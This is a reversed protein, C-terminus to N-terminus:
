AGIMAAVNQLRGALPAQPMAVPYALVFVALATIDDVVFMESTTIVRILMQIVAFVVAAAAFRSQVAFIGIRNNFRSLVIAAVISCLLITAPMSRVSEAAESAILDMMSSSGMGDYGYAAAAGRRKKKKHCCHAEAPPPPMGCSM